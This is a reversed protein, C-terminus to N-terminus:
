GKAIGISDGSFRAYLGKVRSDDAARGLADLFGRLTQKKGFLLESFPEQGRGEVLGRGLDVTLVMSGPLSPRSAVAWWVAVSIGIMLLVTGVGIAAFLGLVFRRMPM